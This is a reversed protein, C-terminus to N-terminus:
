LRGGCEKSIFKLIIGILDLIFVDKGSNAGM